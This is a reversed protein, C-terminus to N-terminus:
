HYNFSMELHYIMKLQLFHISRKNKYDDESPNEQYTISNANTPPLPSEIVQQIQDIMEAYSEVDSPHTFPKHYCRWGSERGLCHKEFKNRNPIMCEESLTPCCYCFLKKVKCAGGRNLAKQHAVMDACRSLKMAKLHPYLKNSNNETTTLDTMFQYFDEFAHFSEKSEQGIIMKMPFCRERSQILISGDVEEANYCVNIPKKSMPCITGYDIMKLGATVYNVSKTLTNGDIAGSLEISRDTINWLRNVKM